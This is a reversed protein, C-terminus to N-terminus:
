ANEKSKKSLLVVGAGSVLVLAFMVAYNHEVGTKPSKPTDDKTDTDVPQPDPVDPTTLKTNIAEIVPLEDSTIIQAYGPAFCLDQMFRKAFELEKGTTNYAGLTYVSTPVTWINERDYKLAANAYRYCYSHDASTYEYNTLSQGSQPIGDSAIFLSRGFSKTKAAEDFVENALVLMDYFNTGGIWKLEDIGKDLEDIDNTFDVIKHARSEFSIIAIRDEKNVDDALGLNKRVFKKAYVKEAELTTMGNSIKDSTSGSIDIALVIYRATRKSAASAPVMCMASMCAVLAFVLLASLMKKM